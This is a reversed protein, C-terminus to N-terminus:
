HKVLNEFNLKDLYNLDFETELYNNQFPLNFKKDIEKAKLLLNLYDQETILKQECSIKLQNSWTPLLNKEYTILNVGGKFRKGILQNVCHHGKLFNYFGLYNIFYIFARHSENLNKSIHKHDYELNLKLGSVKIKTDKTKFNIGIYQKGRRVLFHTFIGELKWDGINNSLPISPIPETFYASDTDGYIFQHYHNLTALCLNIRAQAPIAIGIPLYNCNLKTYISDTKIQNNILCEFYYDKIEKQAFKGYGSNLILKAISKKNPDTQKIKYWKDVFDKFFYAFTTAKFTFEIDWCFYKQLQSSKTIKLVKCMYLIETTTLYFIDGKKVNLIYSLKYHYKKPKILPEYHQETSRLFPMTNEFKFNKLAQFYVFCYYKTNLIDVKIKLQPGIPCFNMSQMVNPYSSNIDYGYASTIVGRYKENVHCIGGRYYKNELHERESSNLTSDVWEHNLIWYWFSKKTLHNMKFIKRLKPDIIEWILAHQKNKICRYKNEPVKIKNKILLENLKSQVYSKKIQKYAISAATIEVFSFGLEQYMKITHKFLIEVDRLLYILENGDVELEKVNNYFTTHTYDLELKPLNIDRGKIALSANFQKKPDLITIYIKRNKHKNDKGTCIVMKLYDHEVELAQYEKVNLINFFQLKKKFSINSNFVKWLEKKNQRKDLSDKFLELYLQYRLQQHQNKITPDIYKMVKIFQQNDLEAVLFHLDFHAGNQFLLIINSYTNTLIKVFDKIRIGYYYTIEKNIYKNILKQKLLKNIIKQNFLYRKRINKQDYKSWLCFAWSYVQANIEKTAKITEFDAAIIISRKTILM